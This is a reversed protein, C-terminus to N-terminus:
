VAELGQLRHAPVHLTGHGTLSNDHHHRYVSLTLHAAQQAIRKITPITGCGAALRTRKYLQGIPHLPALFGQKAKQGTQLPLPHTRFISGSCIGATSLFHSAHSLVPVM